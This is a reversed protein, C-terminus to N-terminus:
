KSKTLSIYYNVLRQLHPKILEEYDNEFNRRHNKFAQEKQKKSAGKPFVLNSKNEVEKIASYIKMESKREEFSFFKNAEKPLDEYYPFGKYYILWAFLTIRRDHNGKTIKDLILEIDPDYKINVNTEAEESLKKKAKLIKYEKKIWEYRYLMEYYYSWHAGLHVGKKIIEDMKQSTYDNISYKFKMEELLTKLYLIKENPTKKLKLERIIDRKDYDNFIYRIVKKNNTKKKM